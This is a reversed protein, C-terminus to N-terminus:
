KGGEGNGGEEEQNAKLADMREKNRKGLVRLTNRREIETMQAWNSIRSLTGDANVVLPGLHDLKVGGGNVDLQHTPDTSESPPLALLPKTATESETSSSTSSETQTPPQITTTTTSTSSPEAPTQSQSQAQAQDQHPQSQSMTSYTNLRNFLTDRNSAYLNTAHCQALISLPKSPTTWHQGSSAIASAPTSIVPRLGLLLHLFTTPRSMRM